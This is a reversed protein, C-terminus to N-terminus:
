LQPVKAGKGELFPIKQRAMAAFSTEPWTRILHVILEGAKDPQGALDYCEAAQKLYMAKLSHNEATESAKEFESAATPFAKKQLHCSAAGALAAAKMDINKGSFSNYMGLAEDYRGTDYYLTALYLRGMNGSATGGWNKVISKLGKVPGNGEIAKDIQGTNLLAIAKSLAISASAEDARTKQMWLLAAGASLSIVVVLAILPKKRMIAFALLRDSLTPVPHENPPQLTNMDNRSTM